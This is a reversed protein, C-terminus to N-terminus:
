RGPVEIATSHLFTSPVGLASSGAFEKHAALYRDLRPDRIVSGNSVFAQSGFGSPSVASSSVFRLGTGATATAVDGDASTPLDSGRLVVLVGAVAVFGAAVATPAMWSWRRGRAGSARQSAVAVTAEIPEPALVVPEKVMRERLTSLFAADRAATSALDESRLLDGILQYRHWSGRLSPDDRWHACALAVADGDVEGDVLASLRELALDRPFSDAAM